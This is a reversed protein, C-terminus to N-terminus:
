TIRQLLSLRVNKVPAAQAKTGRGVVENKIGNSITHPLDGL